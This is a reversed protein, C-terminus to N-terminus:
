LCALDDTDDLITCLDSAMPFGTGSNHDSDLSCTSNSLSEFDSFIIHAMPFNTGFKEIPEELPSEESRSNPEALIKQLHASAEQLAETKYLNNSWFFDNVPDLLDPFSEPDKMRITLDNCTITQDMLDFTIGLESLVDHGLIMDYRHPGPTSNVQQVWYIVKEPTIIM